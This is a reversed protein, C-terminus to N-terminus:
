RKKRKKKKKRKSSGTNTNFMELWSGSVQMPSNDETHERIITKLASHTQRAKDLDESEASLAMALMGKGLKNLIDFDSKILQHQTAIEDWFVKYKEQAIPNKSRLYFDAEYFMLGFVFSLQTSMFDKIAALSPKGRYLGELLPAENELGADYALQTARGFLVDENTQTETRRLQLEYDGESLEPIKWMHQMRLIAGQALTSTCGRILGLKHPQLFDAASAALVYLDKARHIHAGYVDEWDCADVGMSIATDSAETALDMWRRIEEPQLIAMRTAHKSAHEFTHRVLRINYRERGTTALDIDFLYAAEPYYGTGSPMYLEELGFTNMVEATAKSRWKAHPYAEPMGLMDQFSSGDQLSEIVFARMEPDKTRHPISFYPIRERLTQLQALTEM